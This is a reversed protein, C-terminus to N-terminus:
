KSGYYVIECGSIEKHRRWPDLITSGVPYDIEYDHCILFTNPESLIKKPTEGISPDYYVTKIGSDVMLYYGVLVSYSGQLIPSNKKFTKGVIVIPLRNWPWRKKRKVFTSVFKALNRAQGERSEMISGFLDYGLDLEKSLWSLAINDRPHCAGGDGLGAGMYADSIIRKTSKKLVDTVNDVNMNDMRQAVDQIMNVFSLKMSIFTNYFVKISECEEWTGTELRIKNSITSTYYEKMFELTDSDDCGLLIMEPNEMDYEVTEMAVFFPNYVFKYNGILPLFNKRITGPLVTSILVVIQDESVLFYLEELVDEVTKTSFNKPELHTTPFSGDYNSSHPTPLALFIIKSGEICTEISNVIRIKTSERPLVDYGNVNHEKSFFEAVQLGLKGLGVMSINM